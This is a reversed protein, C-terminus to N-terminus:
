CKESSIFNKIIEIQDSLENIAKKMEEMQELMEPEGKKISRLSIKNLTKTIRYGPISFMKNLKFTTIKEFKELDNAIHELFQEKNDFDIINTHFPEIIKIQPLEKKLKIHKNEM